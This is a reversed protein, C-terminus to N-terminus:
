ANTVERWALKYYKGTLFYGPPQISISGRITTTTRRTDPASSWRDARCYTGTGVAGRYKQIIGGHVTLTGRPSGTRYNQAQFSTNLAM